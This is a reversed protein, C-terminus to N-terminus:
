QIPWGGHEEIVEDIQVMLNITESLASVIKKYHEIEDQTLKKGKRTNPKKCGTLWQKCVQYGGVYFNWVEAPVNDFYQTKNIYVRGNTFDAKEVLNDEIIPFSALEPLIVEMLHAQVLCKGLRILNFFLDKDSPVPIRPFDRKLFEAYRSRYGESHLIAFIYHFIDEPGVTIVQDGEGSDTFDLSMRDTILKIFGEAINPKKTGQNDSFLNQQESEPYIYLPFVFGNNSTKPSLCIVESPFRSVLVHGFIEGKTVKTTILALNNKNILHKTLRERRHVAVHSDYITWRYDFPRYLIKVAKEAYDIQSLGQKAKKYDWQEQSCLKFLERAEKETNTSLLKKVKQLSQEKSWSIAFQDHTTVIGPAPKPKGTINFIHGISIYEKYDEIGKDEFPVFLDQYHEVTNIAKFPTTNIDNEYLWHHKGGTLIGKSKNERRGWETHYLLKKPM